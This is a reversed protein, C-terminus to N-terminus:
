VKNKVHRTFNAITPPWTAEVILNDGDETLAIAVQANGEEQNTRITTLAAKIEGVERNIGAMLRITREDGASGYQCELSVKPWDTSVHGTDLM